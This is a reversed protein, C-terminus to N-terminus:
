NMRFDFLHRSVQIPTGTVAWRANSRLDCVARAMQRSENRIFHAPCAETLWPGLRPSSIDPLDGEDLIVRRWHTSFLTSSKKMGEEGKSEASVTHYTTLVINVGELDKQTTLKTKGYHLRLRLTESFLHRRYSSHDKLMLYSNDPM